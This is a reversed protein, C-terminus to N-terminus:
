KIKAKFATIFRIGFSKSTRIATISGSDIYCKDLTPFLPYLYLLAYIVFPRM